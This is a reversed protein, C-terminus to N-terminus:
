ELRHSGVGPEGPAVTECSLHRRLRRVEQPDADACGEHVELDRPDKATMYRSNRLFRKFRANKVNNRTPYVQVGRFM